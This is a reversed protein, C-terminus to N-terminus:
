MLARINTKHVINNLLWDKLPGALNASISVDRWTNHAM